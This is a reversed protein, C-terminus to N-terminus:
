GDVGSRIVQGSPVTVAGFEVNVDGSQPISQWDGHRMMLDHNTWIVWREMMM